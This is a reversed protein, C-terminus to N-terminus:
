TAQQIIKLTQNKYKYTLRYHCTKNIQKYNKEGVPYMNLNITKIGDHKSIAKCSVHLIFIIYM